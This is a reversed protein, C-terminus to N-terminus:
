EICREFSCPLFLFRFAVDVLALSTICTSTHLSHSCGRDDDYFPFSFADLPQEVLKRRDTFRHYAWSASAFEHILPQLRTDFLSSPHNSPPILTTGHPPMTETTADIVPQTCATCVPRHFPHAYNARGELLARLHSLPASSLM